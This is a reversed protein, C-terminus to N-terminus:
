SALDPSPLASLDVVTLWAATQKALEARAAEANAASATVITDIRSPGDPTAAAHAAIARTKAGIGNVEVLEGNPKVDALVIVGRDPVRDTLLYWWGRAAAGGISRGDVYVPDPLDKGTLQWTAGLEAVDHGENQALTVAAAWADQLAQIFDSAVAVGFADSPHRCVTQAGAAVTELTLEVVWGHTDTGDELAAYVTTPTTSPALLARIWGWVTPGDTNLWRPLETMNLATRDQAQAFREPQTAAKEACWLLMAATDWARTQGLPVPAEPSILYEDRWQERLTRTLRRWDVAARSRVAHALAQYLTDGHVLREWKYSRDPQEPPFALLSALDEM